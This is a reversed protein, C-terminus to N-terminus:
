RDDGELSFREPILKKPFSLGLWCGIIPAPAAIRHAKPMRFLIVSCCSLHSVTDWPEGVKELQFTTEAPYPGFYVSSYYM